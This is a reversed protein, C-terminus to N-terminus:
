PFIECFLFIKGKVHAYPMTVTYDEGLKLLTLTATGDLIASTSNGSIHFFFLKNTQINCLVIDPILNIGNPGLTPSPMGGVVM